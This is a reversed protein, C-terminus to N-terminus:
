AFVDGLREGLGEVAAVFQLRWCQRIVELFVLTFQYRWFTASYSFCAWFLGAVVGFFMTSFLRKAALLFVLFCSVFLRWLSGPCGFVFGRLTKLVDDACMMKEPLVVNSSTPCSDVPKHGVVELGMREIKRRIAQQKDVELGLQKTKARV